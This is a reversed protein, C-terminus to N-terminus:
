DRLATQPKINFARLAPFVSIITTLVTAIVAIMVLLEPNLNPYVVSRIGLSGGDDTIKIGTKSTISVIIIGLIIGPLSGIFMMMGSEKMLMFLVKSKRLGIARLMGIEHTREQVIMNMTNMLSFGLGIIIVISFLTGVMNLFGDFATLEPLLEKWNNIELDNSLISKIATETQPLQSIDKLRIAIEHPQTLQALAALDDYRVLFTAEDFPTSPTAFIGAVKFAGGLIDGKSDKFTLVLKSKLKLKLKDATKKSVLIENSKAEDLYNGEVIFDKLVSVKNEQQPIVGKVEGAVSNEPSAIVANSSIRKATAEVNANANLQTLINDANSIYFAIEKDETFGKKHIQLHTSQINIADDTRQKSISKMLNIALIAVGFGFFAAAIFVTTRTKNRWINKWALKTTM